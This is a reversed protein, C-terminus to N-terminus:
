PREKRSSVGAAAAMDAIRDYASLPLIEIGRLGLFARSTASRPDDFTRRLAERWLEVEADSAAGRTIFPPAPALASRALVRLSAVWDPRHRVILGFTVCDCACVDARGELVARLSAIHGGTEIEEAFTDRAEVLTHRLAIYGSHSDRSNIAVRSGRLDALTVLTADARAVIVSSYTPGDCGPFDYVPTALLRVRGALATILPLGCTQAFALDPADWLARYPTARDVGDPAPLGLARAHDRLCAWLADNAGQAFPPDYFGLYATM